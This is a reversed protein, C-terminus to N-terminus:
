FRQVRNSNVKSRHLYIENHGLVVSALSQLLTSNTDRADYIDSILM